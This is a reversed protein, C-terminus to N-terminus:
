IKDPRLYFAEKEKRIIIYINTKNFKLLEIHVLIYIEFSVSIWIQCNKDYVNFLSQSTRIMSMWYISQFPNEKLM